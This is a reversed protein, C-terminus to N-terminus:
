EVPAPTAVGYESVVVCRVPIGTSVVLIIRGGANPDAGPTDAGGSAHTM